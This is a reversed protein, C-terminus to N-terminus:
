FDKKANELKLLIADHETCQESLGNLAKLELDADKRASEYKEKEASINGLTTYEEKLQALGSRDKEMADKITKLTATLNESEAKTTSLEKKKEDLKDYDPVIANLDAIKQIITEAEPKNKEANELKAKLVTLSAKEESLKQESESLAKEAKKQNSIITLIETLKNLQKEINKVEEDYLKEASEDKIILSGLLVITEEVTMEDNKAKEVDLLFTDNEECTIDNIYQKISSWLNRHKNYLESYDKKLQEQVRAYNGTHFIKQFIKKRDETPALLLKLFDGQAIMAIQTFQNRDIGLIDIVASNVEKKKTIVRGDPYYLEANAAAITFGEGRAKLRQYEPNRKVKYKQGAYEFILEVETPTEPEAYKSRFMDADRNDGSPEGFLAYTIADFITTKGAGTDGTILYLGSKGLKDLEFTTKGAYPGFASVTLKVPRM